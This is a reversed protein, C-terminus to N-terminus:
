NNKLPIELQVKKDLYLPHNKSKTLGKRFRPMILLPIIPYIIVVALETIMSNKLKNSLYYLIIVILLSSAWSSVYICALGVKDFFISIKRNILTKYDQIGEKLEIVKGKISAKAMEDDHLIEVRIGSKPEFFKFELEIFNEEIKKINFGNTPEETFVIAASYINVKNSFEIRIVDEKVLDDERITKNGSNWFYVTTKVLKNILHEGLHMEEKMFLLNKDLVIENTSDYALKVDPLAIKYFTYGVIITVISGLVFTFATNYKSILLLIESM